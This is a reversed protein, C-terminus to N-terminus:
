ATASLKPNAKIWFGKEGSADGIRHFSLFCVPWSRGVREKRSFERRIHYVGNSFAPQKVVGPLGAQRYAPSVLLLYFFQRTM